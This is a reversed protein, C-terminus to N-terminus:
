VGSETIVGAAPQQLCLESNEDVAVCTAPPANVTVTWSRQSQKGAKDAVKLVVKQRGETQAKYLWTTGTAAEQKKVFWKYTLQESPDNGTAEASFNIEGGLPV